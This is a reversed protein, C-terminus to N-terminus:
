LKLFDTEDTKCVFNIKFRTKKTLFNHYSQKAMRLSSGANQKNFEAIALIWFHFKIIKQVRAVMVVQLLDIHFYM